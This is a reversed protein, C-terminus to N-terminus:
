LYKSIKSTKYVTLILNPKAEPNVIVRVLYKKQNEFIILKQFVKETSSEYLISDPFELVEIVTSNSISRLKMQELSHMSFRFDM